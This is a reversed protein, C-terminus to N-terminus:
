EAKAGSITIMRAIVPDLTEFSRRFETSSNAIPEMAYKKLEDKMPESLIAARAHEELKALIPAPTATPALLGVWGVPRFEPGTLGAEEMTPVNPLEPLRKDGTVALALLQGSELYPALTGLTGVGWPIHGGIMDQIMPMEGKYAAHTMDLRKSENLFASLLHGAGGVGFSGYNVKGKNQAAWALFEALTKAPIDKNVALVLHGTYLQTVFAFDKRPDYPVKMMHPMNQLPAGHTVLVTYGDPASRAVTQAALVGAAGPKNDVIITQHMRKGMERALARALVDGGGGPVSPVVFTIPRDPYTQALALTSWCLAAFCLLVKTYIAKGNRM